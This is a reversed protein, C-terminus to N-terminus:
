INEEFYSLIYNFLDKFLLKYHSVLMLMDNIKLYFKSLLPIVNLNFDRKSLRM